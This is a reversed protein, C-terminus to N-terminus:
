PATLTQDLATSLPALITHSFYQFSTVYEFIHKMWINIYFKSPVWNHQYSGSHYVRNTPWKRSSRALVDNVIQGLWWNHSQFALLGSFKSVQVNCYIVYSSIEHVCRCRPRKCYPKAYCRNGFLVTKLQNWFEEWLM